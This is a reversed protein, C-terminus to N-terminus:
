TYCVAYVYVYVISQATIYKWALVVQQMGDVCLLM